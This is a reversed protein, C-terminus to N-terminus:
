IWRFSPRLSELLAKSNTALRSTLDLTLPVGFQVSEEAIGHVHIICFGILGVGCLRVVM